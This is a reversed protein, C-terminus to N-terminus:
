ARQPRTSVGAVHMTDGEVELTIWLDRGVKITGGKLQDEQAMETLTDFVENIQEDSLTETAEDFGSFFTLRYGM